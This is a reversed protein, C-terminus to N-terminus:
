IKSYKKKKKKKKKKRFIEYNKNRIKRTTKKQRKVNQKKGKQAM